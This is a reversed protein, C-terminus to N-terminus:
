RQHISLATTKLTKAHALCKSAIKCYEMENEYSVQSTLPIKDTKRFPFSLDPFNFSCAWSKHLEYTLPVQLQVRIERIGFGRM